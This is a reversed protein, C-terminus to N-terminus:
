KSYHTHQRGANQERAENEYSTGSSKPLIVIEVRRNQQRGKTTDNSTIPHDEGYGVAMLRSSDIGQKEVLYDVVANARATSLAKNDSWGSYKIPVNDTHGEVGVPQDPVEKLVQAVKDLVPYAGRRLEAKGSDFLVQDVLRTVLGREDYGVSAESSNLRQELLEKARRLDDAEEAKLQALTKFQELQDSLEALQQIDWPSRKALTIACGTGALLSVGLVVAMAHRM